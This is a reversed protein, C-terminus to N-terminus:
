KKTLPNRTAVRQGKLQKYREVHPRIQQKIRAQEERATALAIDALKLWHDYRSDERLEDRLPLILTDAFPREDQKMRRPRTAAFLIGSGRPWTRYRVYQIKHCVTSATSRGIGLM